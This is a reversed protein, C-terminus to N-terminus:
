PAWGQVYGELATLPYVQCTALHILAPTVQPDLPDVNGVSVIIWEGDPSWVPDSIGRDDLQAIMRRESGDLAMAYLGYDMGGEVREMLAITRGDPSFAVNTGKSDIVVGDQVEGGALDLFRMQLGQPGPFVYGLTQSGPLWGLLQEYEPGTTLQQLNSGDLDMLYLNLDDIRVFAIQSGDPSFRPNYDNTTTGPLIRNEGSALDVIHLGESWSYAALAGDPSLTSWTGPGLVQRSDDKLDLVFIGSNEPSLRQGDELIRGYAIVKGELDQPLPPSQDVAELWRELNLCPQAVDLTPVPAASQPPEWTLTWPGEHRALIGTIRFTLVGTPVPDEYKFAHEFEGLYGGGSGGIPIHQTDEIAISSVADDSKFHLEYGNELRVASLVQVLHGALQFDQNLTWEQGVQPQSGVDFSLSAQAPLQVEVAQFTITLPPSFGRPIQYAWPFVGLEQSSLDLDSPIQFPLSQGDADTIEPWLTLGMVMAGPLSEGQRFTGILIYSEELEIVNELVLGTAQAEEPLPTAQLTPEIQQVPVVTMEPPAAIFRLAIEWDEPAAGPAADNLCPVFLLAEDVGAPVAPFVLRSEYGSAWGRGSGEIFNLSTGDPLHLQPSQHCFPADERLPYASHPIGDARYILITQEADIVVQQVTLTIGEREVTVPSALTRLGTSDDVFGIGPIYGVLTRLAALAKEPGIIVMSVILILALTLASLAAIKRLSSSAKRHSLLDEQTLRESVSPWLDVERPPVGEDAIAQLVAQLANESM